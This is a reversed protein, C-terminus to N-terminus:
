EAHWVEIAETVKVLAGVITMGDRVTLPARPGQGPLLSGMRARILNEAEQVSATAANLRRARVVERAGNTPAPADPM